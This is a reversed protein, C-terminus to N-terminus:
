RKVKLIVLVIVAGVLAIIGLMASAWMPDVSFTESVIGAGAFAFILIALIPVSIILPIRLKYMGYLMLLFVLLGALIPGGMAQNLTCTFIESLQLVEGAPGLCPSTM